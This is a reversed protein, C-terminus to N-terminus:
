WSKIYKDCFIIFLYWLMWKSAHIKNKMLIGFPLHLLCVNHICNCNCLLLVSPSFTYKRQYSSLTFFLKVDTTFSIGCCSKEWTPKFMYINVIILRLYLNFINRFNYVFDFQMKENSIHTCVNNWNYNFFTFVHLDFSVYSYKNIL